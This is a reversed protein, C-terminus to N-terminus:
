SANGVESSIIQDPPTTVTFFGGEGPDYRYDGCDPCSLCSQATVGTIALDHVAIVGAVGACAAYVQSVFLSAGIQVVNSGLLGNDADVLAATAAMFVDDLVYKPDVRLTLSLTIPVSQAQIVRLPRNPDSADALAKNANSVANADDGVYVKIMMRQQADDWTWYARARSVGPAQAAIAEYDSASIARGFTLVSQPAYKKIQSPPNPDAGGGVPVPNAISKLGPWSKLIVTLSGPDPNEAGSGIRYSAVVNNVGSPLRSGYVGDGFQVHTMNQEDERTVFVQANPGQGYFSPIEQWEIGDVWVQLTSTYGTGSSSGTSQLYTLPSKQLVFEQGTTITADGSGLIENAVTKGRSVPLLNFLVDLPAALKQALLTSEWSSDSPGNPSTLGLSQPDSIGTSAAAEVGNGNQDGILVNQNTLPLLLSPLSILLSLETSTLTTAPTPILTGVDQWGFRVLTTQREYDYVQTLEPQFAIRTHPIPIAIPPPSGTPPQDPTSSSAPNAYWIVEQYSTVSVLNFQPVTFSTVVGGQYAVISLPSAASGYVQVTNGGGKLNLGDPSYYISNDDFAALVGTGYAIMQWIQHPGGYALQTNGTAQGLNNGDTSRYATGDSFATVVGSQSGVIAYVWLQGSYVQSCNSGGGPNQGDLTYYIANGSQNQVYLVTILGGGFSIMFQPVGSSQNGLLQSSGGGYLHTGDPSFYMSGDDWGAVVGDNFPTLTDLFASNNLAGDDVEVTNGGGGLNSGDPSYFVNDGAAAIVGGNFPLMLWVRQWGTASFVQVTNGGGGPNQGDPSYYATGDSFSTILGSQYAVMYVVSRDLVGESLTNGGGGLNRGDPSFYIGQTASITGVEFLVPDGVKISRVISALDAQNDAIVTDASYQWVHVSQTSKLLRYDSANATLLQSPAEAFIVRTNSNGRPDKEPSVSAVTLVAFNNDAGSWGREILLLEDGPKVSSVVGRLLVGSENSGLLLPSPIPDAGIDDPKQVVTQADLEFIQPQKGPGPKSQIQFGQPLTLSKSGTMLASLVGTAGIGPRPRYGLLRIVRQVSEPLVATRVYDENAIRENYFTLIDALYAWWEIMQVALDGSAGPRWNALEVEGPRSRLLAERFGFYDGVRYAISNRGPLNTITQPFTFGDCPCISSSM